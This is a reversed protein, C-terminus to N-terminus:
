AIASHLHDLELHITRISPVVACLLQKNRSHFLLVLRRLSHQSFFLAFETGGPSVSNIDRGSSHSFDVIQLAPFDARSVMSALIQSSHDNFNLTLKQLLPLHWPEPSTHAPAVDEYDTCTLSLTRLHSLCGVRTLVAVTDKSEINLTLYQLQQHQQSVKALSPLVPPGKLSLKHLNTAESLVSNFNQIESVSPRYLDVSLSTLYRALNRGDSKATLVTEALQLYPQQDICARSYLVPEVAEQMM